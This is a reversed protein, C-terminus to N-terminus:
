DAYGHGFVAIHASLARKGTYQVDIGIRWAGCRGAGAGKRRGAACPDLDTGVANAHEELQGLHRILPYEMRLIRYIDIKSM